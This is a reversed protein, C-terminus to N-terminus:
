AEIFAKYQNVCLPLNYPLGLLSLCFFFTVSTLSSHNVPNVLKWTFLWNATSLTNMYSTTSYLLFMFLFFTYCRGRYDYGYISPHNIEVYTQWSESWDSYGAQVPSPQPNSQVQVHSVCGHTIWLFVYSERRLESRILCRPRGSSACEVSLSNADTPRRTYVRSGIWELTERRPPGRETWTSCQFPPSSLKAHFVHVLRNHRTLAHTGERRHTLPHMHWCTPSLRHNMWLQMKNTLLVPKSARFANLGGGTTHQLRPSSM